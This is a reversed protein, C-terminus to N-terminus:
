RQGRVQAPIIITNAYASIVRLEAHAQHWDGWSAAWVQTLLWGIGNPDPLLPIDELRVGMETVYAQLLNAFTKPPIHDVHSNRYDIIEGTVPCEIMTERDPLVAQKVAIVQSAIARRMAYKVRSAQTVPRICQKYSFDISTGDVRDLIFGNSNFAVKAVRFGAIGAGIKVDASPHRLVFESLFAAHDPTVTEGARYSRLIDQAYQSLATKTPFSLGNVIYEM